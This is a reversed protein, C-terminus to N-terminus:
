RFVVFLVYASVVDVFLAICCILLCEGANCPRPSSPACSPSSSILCALGYVVEVVYIYFLMIVYCCNCERRPDDTLMPVICLINAHGRRLSSMCVDLLTFSLMVVIRALLQDLLARLPAGLELGGVCELVRNFM